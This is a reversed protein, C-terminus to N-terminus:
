DFVFFVFFVVLRAKNYANTHDTDPTFVEKKEATIAGSKVMGHNLLLIKVM